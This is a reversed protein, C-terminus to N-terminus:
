KHDLQLPPSQPLCSLPRREHRLMSRPFVSQLGHASVKELAERWTTGRGELYRHIEETSPLGDTKLERQIANRIQCVARRRQRSEESLEIKYGTRLRNAARIRDKGEETWKPCRGKLTAALHEKNSGFLELNEPRNDTKVENKHHVVESKELFRGLVAEMVLRHELVYKNHKRANPHNPCYIEVYGANNVTKGGKWGKHLHGSRPGSKPMEISHKACLKSVGATSWRRGCRSYVIDAVEQLTKGSEIMERLEVGGVVHELIQKM